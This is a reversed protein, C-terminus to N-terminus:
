ITGSFTGRERDPPLVFAWSELDGYSPMTTTLSVELTAAAIWWQVGDARGYLWVGDGLPRAVIPQPAIWRALRWRM